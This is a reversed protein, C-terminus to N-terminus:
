DKYIQNFLLNLEVGHPQYGKIPIRDGKSLALTGLKQIRHGSLLTEQAM